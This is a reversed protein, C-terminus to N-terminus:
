TTQFVFLAMPFTFCDHYAAKLSYSGRINGPKFAQFIPAKSIGKFNLCVNRFFDSYGEMNRLYEPRPDFDEFECVSDAGAVKLNRAKQPTGTHKKDKHFSQLKETYSSEIKINSSKIFKCYAFLVALIHKCHGTPGEGAGCECQAENVFGSNRLSIDISYTMKKKMEARCASHIFDFTDTSSLRIYLLFHENYLDVVKDDFAVDFWVMYESAKEADIPAMKMDTNVDKFSAAVPVNMRFQCFTKQSVLFITEIM